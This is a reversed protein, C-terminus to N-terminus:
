KIKETKERPDNIYRWLRIAEYLLRVILLLSGLIVSPGLDAVMGFLALIYSTVASYASSGGDGTYNFM